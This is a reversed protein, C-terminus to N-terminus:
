DKVLPLSFYFTSGKNKGESEMWIEGGHSEIIKKSIHLGLGTGDIGLDLGQGYREIKGFQKFIREKEEKTFGIGNDKISVIVTEDKLDTKINIWGRPPTYKIANTLLNTLVDHIEEKAFRTIISEHIEINLSHERTLALPRLEKVCFNILFSLDEKELKPKLNPSELKSTYLLDNIIKQLRTCGNDVEELKSIIDPNLEDSHMTLILDTYGKISVLPTKLEHSARSLFESKLRNIEKLKKEMKKSETIDRVIGWIRYPDSQEDQLIWFRISVPLINGNKHIFEKEYVKSEGEALHTFLMNDENEYWKPPTIERNHLKLLEERSYGTMKLFTENVEIFLGEMDTSYIGDTSSEFLSRYKNESEILKQEAIKKSTIDTIYAFSGKYQQNEDMIPAARIETYITNADKKLFQFEYTEKIGKERKSRNGEILVEMSEPIFSHLNKGIMEEKTYGLMECMRQNVFITNEFEDLAWVGEQASEILNRYKEESKRLKQETEKRKTIDRSILIAGIIENNEILFKGKLEVWLYHGNKHRIKFEESFLGRFLAKKMAKSVRKLDDPHTFDRPRKGLVEEKRYGLVSYYANENIYIHEFDKNLIAILDNSNDAILKFKKETEKLNKELRYKETVNTVTGEILTSNDDDTKILHSNIQIYIQEAKPTRIKAIFDKVYGNKSLKNHYSKQVEPDSFFQSSYSGTLDVLPDLGLIRNIATTHILLKGKYVGKFYGIDLDNLLDQINEKSNVEEDNNIYM